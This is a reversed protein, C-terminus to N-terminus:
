KAVVLVRWKEYQDKWFEATEYPYEGIMKELHPKQWSDFEIFMKGQPALFAPAETLLKKIFYMGDDDAFFALTPEHEVASRDMQWERGEGIYPPNAFIYDYKKEPIRLFVDSEFVRARLPSIKNLALNKEIQAVLNPDKEGFDVISDSLRKLIGIGICGSGAFIDLIDFETKDRRTKIKGIAEEVWYETEVRPILPKHSLDIKAGLFDTFGIVYDLPEGAEVRKIDEFFEPTEKGGHKENLLWEREKTQM